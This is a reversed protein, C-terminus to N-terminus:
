PRRSCTLDIQGLLVVRCYSRRSGDYLWLELKPYARLCLLATSRAQESEILSALGLVPQVNSSYDIGIAEPLSRLPVAHLDPCMM